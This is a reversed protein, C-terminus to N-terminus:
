RSCSQLLYKEKYMKINKDIQNQDIELLWMAPDFTQMSENGKLSPIQQLLADHLGSLVEQLLAHIEWLLAQQM